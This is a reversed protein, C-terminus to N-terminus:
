SPLANSMHHADQPKENLLYAPGCTRLLSAFGRVNTSM